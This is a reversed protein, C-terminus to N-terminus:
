NEQSKDADSTLALFTFYKISLALQLCGNVVYMCARLSESTVQSLSQLDHALNHRDQSQDSTMHYLSSM